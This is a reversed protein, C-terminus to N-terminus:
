RLSFVPGGSVCEDSLLFRVRPQLLNYPLNLPLNYLLSAPLNYPLKCPLGGRRPRGPFYDARGAGRSWTRQRAPKGTRAPATLRGALRGARPGGDAATLVLRVGAVRASATLLNVTTAESEM